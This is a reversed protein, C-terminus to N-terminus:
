GKVPSDEVVEVLEILEIVDNGDALAAEPEKVKKPRPKAPKPAGAESRKGVPRQEGPPNLCDFLARLLQERQVPPKLTVAKVRPPSASELDDIWLTPVPWRDIAEIEVLKGAEVQRLMVADVILADFERAQSAAPPADVFQFVHDPTLAMALGYRLMRNPEIILLRSM